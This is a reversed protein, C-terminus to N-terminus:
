HSVSDSIAIGIRLWSEFREVRLTELGYKIQGFWTISGDVHSKDHTLSPKNRGKIVKSIMLIM